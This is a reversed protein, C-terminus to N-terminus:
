GQSIFEAEELDSISFVQTAEKDDEDDIRLEIETVEPHLRYIETGNTSGGEDYTWLSVNPSSQPILQQLDAVTTAAEIPKSLTALM